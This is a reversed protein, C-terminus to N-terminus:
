LSLIYSNYLDDVLSLFTIKRSLLDDKEVETQECILM